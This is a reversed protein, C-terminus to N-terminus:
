VQRWMAKPCPATRVVAYPVDTVLGRIWADSAVFRARTDSLRAVERRARDLAQRHRLLDTADAETTTVLFRHVREEVPDLGLSEM